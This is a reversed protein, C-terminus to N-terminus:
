RRRGNEERRGSALHWMDGLQRDFAVPDFSDVAGGATITMEGFYVQEDTDYLDVRVFDLGRGLAEAYAIMEGLHKPPDVEQELNPFSFRVDLQNWSRGYVNSRHDGFRGVHIAILEARGDFVFLKYDAPASTGGGIFEEIMIRPEINKYVWEAAVDYYNQRLWDACTEILGARDVSTKDAVLRVWGSGHTPKVVFKQPLIEFPIDSPDTTTWYLETLVHAGVREKVYERVAYKDALMTLIPRRDFLLRHLMKENFTKPTVLNPLRGAQRTYRRVLRASAFMANPLVARATAVVTRNM